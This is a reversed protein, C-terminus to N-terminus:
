VLTTPRNRQSHYILVFSPRGTYLPGWIRPFRSWGEQGFFNYNKEVPTSPGAMPLVFDMMKFVFDMMKFAFDMMKFVFNMM